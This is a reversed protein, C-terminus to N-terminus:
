SVDIISDGVIAQDVEADKDLILSINFVFHEVVSVLRIQEHTIAAKSYQGPLHPCHPPLTMHARSLHRRRAM